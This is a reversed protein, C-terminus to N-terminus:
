NPTGTTTRTQKWRHHEQNETTTTITGALETNHHCATPACDDLVPGVKVPKGAPNIYAVGYVNNIASNQTFFTEHYLNRIYFGTYHGKMIRGDPLRGSSIMRNGDMTNHHGEAIAICINSFSVCTNNKCTLYRSAHAAPNGPSSDGCTIMSGNNGATPDKAYAGQIYNHAVLAPNGPKGAVGTVSIIDTYDTQGPQNIIENWSIEFRGPEIIGLTASFFGACSGHSTPRPDANLHPDCRGTTVRGDTNVARNRSIVLESVAAPKRDGTIHVGRTHSFENDTIVVRRPWVAKFFFGRARGPVKPDLGEGHCNRVTVNMNIQTARDTSWAAILNGPGRVSCNEIVVPESTHITVAAVAPDTSAWRGSYRGGKTIELPGSYSVTAKPTVRSPRVSVSGSVAPSSTVNASPVPAPVGIAAPQEASVPERDRVAAYVGISSAAVAVVTLGATATNGMASHLRRLTRVVAKAPTASLSTPAALLGSQPVLLVFTPLLQEAPVFTGAVSTCRPCAAVHRLLRKRWLPSPKGDWGASEQALDPCPNDSGARRFEALVRVLTRAKALRDRMRQLRVAVYPLSQDLAAAISARDMEGLLELWWLTLLERDDEDLWSAAVAM